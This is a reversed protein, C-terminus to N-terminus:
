HLSIYVQGVYYLRKDMARWPMNKFSLRQPKNLVEENSHLIYDIRIADVRDWHQIASSLCFHNAGQERYTFVIKELNTLIEEEPDRIAISHKKQKGIHTQLIFLPTSHKLPKKRAIAESLQHKSELQVTFITNLLRSDHVLKTLALYYRLTQSQQYYLQFLFTVLLLSLAQVIMLEMLTAGAQKGYEFYM